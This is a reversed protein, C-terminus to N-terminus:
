PHIHGLRKLTRQHTHDQDQNQLPNSLDSQQSVVPATRQHPVHSLIVRLSDPVWLICESMVFWVRLITNQNSFLWEVLAQTNERHHCRSGHCREVSRQKRHIWVCVRQLFELGYGDKIILEVKLLRYTLVGSIWTVNIWITNLSKIDMDDM